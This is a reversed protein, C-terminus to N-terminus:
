VEFLSRLEAIACGIYIDATKLKGMTMGDRTTMLHIAARAARMSEIASKAAWFPHKLNRSQNTRKPQKV